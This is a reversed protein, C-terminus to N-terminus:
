SGHSVTLLSCVLLFSQLSKGGGPSHPLTGQQNPSSIQKMYFVHTFGNCFLSKSNRGSLAWAPCAM